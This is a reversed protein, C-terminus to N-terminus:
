HTSFSVGYLSVWGPSGQLVTVNGNTEIDIRGIANPHTQVPFLNRTRPRYGGPLNFVPVNITGSKILGRLHVVGLSDKYYAAGGYGTSYTQWGSGPTYKAGNWGEQESVVLRGNVELLDWVSVRRAIHGSARKIGASRNGVIMLTKYSRTDNSIESVNTKADPSGSWTSTVRVPNSGVELIGGIDAAGTVVVSAFQAGQSVNLTGNVELRDWVSVRRAGGNSRNGLIMLTKYTKIDNAIEATNRAAYSFNTYAGTLRLPATDSGVRMHAGVDLADDPTNVGIGVRGSQTEIFFPPKGTDSAGKAFTLGPKGSASLGISWAPESDAFTSYLNLVRKAAPADAGAEISLPNNAAKAVGDDSQNFSADILAAFNAETPIANQVFFAKLETRDSKDIEIPM